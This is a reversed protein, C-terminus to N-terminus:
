TLLESNHGVIINAVNPSVIVENGGSFNGGSMRRGILGLPGISSKLEAYNNRVYSVYKINSSFYAFKIAILKIKPEFTRM